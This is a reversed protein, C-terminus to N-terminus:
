VYRNNMSQMEQRAIARGMRDHELVDDLDQIEAWAATQLTREVLVPIDMFSIQRDLFAQVACENAANM